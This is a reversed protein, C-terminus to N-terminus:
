RDPKSARTHVLDIVDAYRRAILTWSLPLVSNRSQEAVAQRGFEALVGDVKMAGAAISSPDASVLWGNLGDTIVRPAIGTPTIIAPVGSALAELLVLPGTEYQTPLVMSDAITYISRAQSVRGLFIVRSTPGVRSKAQDVLGPSGGVVVLRFRLPLSNLADVAHWLGKRDFEHGVFLMVHEDPGIGYERRQNAREVETAISWQELDIGNPIVELQSQVSPYLERLITRDDDTLCVVIQHRRSRYRFEDRALTFWHMPNRPIYVRGRGRDAMVKKLLGHNVFIDGYIPDGHTLVVANQNKGHRQWALWTGAISFWVVDRMLKLKSTVLNGTHSSNSLGCDELTIRQTSYGMQNFQKELSEAVSGVGFGHGFHRVVQVIQPKIPQPELENSNV